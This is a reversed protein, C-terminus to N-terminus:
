LNKSLIAYIDKDKAFVLVKDLKVTAGEKDPMRDADITDGESVKFQTSGVQVVAYM